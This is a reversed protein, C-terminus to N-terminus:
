RGLGTRGILQALMLITGPSSSRISAIFQYLRIGRITCTSTCNPPPSQSPLPPLHILFPSVSRSFQSRDIDTIVVGLCRAIGGSIWRGESATAGRRQTSFAAFHGEKNTSRGTAELTGVGDLHCDGLLSTNHSTVLQPIAAGLVRLPRLVAL